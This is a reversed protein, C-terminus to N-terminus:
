LIKILKDLLKNHEKLLKYSKTKQRKALAIDLRANLDLVEKTLRTIEKSKKIKVELTLKNSM